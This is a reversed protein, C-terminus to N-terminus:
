VSEPHLAALVLVDEVPRAEINIDRDFGKLVRLAERKDALDGSVSGVPRGSASPLALRVACRAASLAPESKEDPAQDYDGPLQKEVSQHRGVSWREDIMKLVRAIDTLDFRRRRLGVHDILRAHIAHPQREGDVALDDAGRADQHM